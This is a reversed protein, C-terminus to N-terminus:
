GIFLKDYQYKYTQVYRPNSYYNLRHDVAESKQAVISGYGATEEGEPGDSMVYGHGHPFKKNTKMENYKIDHHCGFNHAIEHAM